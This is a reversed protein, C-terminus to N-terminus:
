ELFYFAFILFYHPLACCSFASDTHGFTFTNSSSGLTHCPVLAAVSYSLKVSSFLFVTSDPLGIM